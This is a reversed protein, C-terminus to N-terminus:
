QRLMQVALLIAATIIAVAFVVKYNVRTMRATATAAQPVM